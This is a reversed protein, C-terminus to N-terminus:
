DRLIALARDFNKDALAIEAALLIGEIANPNIERIKILHEDAQALGLRAIQLRAMQFRPPILNPNLQVARLFQSFAQRQNGARLHAMGLEYSIEASNPDAEAPNTLAAIAEPIKGQRLSEHASKIFRQRKVESSVGLEFYWALAGGAAM